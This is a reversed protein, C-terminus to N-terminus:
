SAASNMALLSLCDAAMSQITMGALVSRCQRGSCAARVQDGTVGRRTRIKAEVSPPVEIYTIWFAPVRDSYHGDTGRPATGGDM